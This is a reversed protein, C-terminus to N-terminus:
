RLTKFLECTCTLSATRTLRRDGTLLTACPAEALALCAAAACTTVTNRRKWRRALLPRHSARRMPMARLDTM